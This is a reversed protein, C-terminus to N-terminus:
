NEDRKPVWRYCTCDMKNECWPSCAAPKAPTVHCKHVPCVWVVKPSVRSINSRKIAPDVELPSHSEIGDWIDRILPGKIQDRTWHARHQLIFSGAESSLGVSQQSSVSSKRMVSSSCVSMSSCQTSDTMDLEEQRFKKMARLELSTSTSPLGPEFPVKKSSTEAKWYLAAPMRIFVAVVIRTM